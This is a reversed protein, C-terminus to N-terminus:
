VTFAVYGAQEVSIAQNTLWCKDGLTWGGGHLLVIAPFPGSGQPEYLDGQQEFGGGPVYAVNYTVTGGGAVSSTGSARSNTCQPLSGEGSGSGGQQASAPGPVLSLGAALFLAALVFM